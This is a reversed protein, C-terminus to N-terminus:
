EGTTANPAGVTFTVGDCSSLSAGTATAPLQFINLDNVACVGTGSGCSPTLFPTVSIIDGANNQDSDNTLILAAQFTAGVNLPGLPFTPVVSGGVGAFASGGALLLTLLFAGVRQVIRPMAGNRISQM